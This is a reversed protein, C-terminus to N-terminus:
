RMNADAFRQADNENGVYIASLPCRETLKESDSEYEVVVNTYINSMYMREDDKPKISSRLRLEDGKKLKLPLADKITGKETGNVVVTDNAFALFDEFKIETVTVDAEASVSFDYPTENRGFFSDTFIYNSVCLVSLLHTNNVYDRFKNEIPTDFYLKIEKGNVKVTMSDIKVSDSITRVMVAPIRFYKGNIKKNKLPDPTEDIFTVGSIYETNEGEASVYEINLNKTDSIVNINFGFKNESNDSRDMKYRVYEPYFTVGNSDSAVDQSSSADDQAKGSTGCSCLSLMLIVVALLATIKKKM